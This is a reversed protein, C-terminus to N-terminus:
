KEKREALGCHCITDPNIPLLCCYARGELKDYEYFECDKCYTVSADITPMFTVIEKVSELCSMWRPDAHERDTFVNLADMLKEADIPRM